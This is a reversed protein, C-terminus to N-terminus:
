CICTLASARNAVVDTAPSGPCPPEHDRHVSHLIGNYVLDWLAQNQQITWLQSHVENGHRGSTWTTLAAGASASRSGLWNTSRSSAAECTLGTQM